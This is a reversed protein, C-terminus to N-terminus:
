NPINAGFLVSTPFLKGYTTENAMINGNDISVCEVQHYKLGMHGLIAGIILLICPMGLVMMWFISLQFNDGCSQKKNCCYKIEKHEINTMRSSLLEIITETFDIM